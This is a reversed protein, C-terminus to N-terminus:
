FGFVAEGSENVDLIANLLITNFQQETIYQLAKQRFEKYDETKIINDPTGEFEIEINKDLLLVNFNFDEEM